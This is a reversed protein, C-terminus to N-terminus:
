EGAAFCIPTEMESKLRGIKIKFIFRRRWTGHRGGECSRTGGAGVAARVDATAHMDVAAARAEAAASRFDSDLLATRTMKDCNNEDEAVEAEYYRDGGGFSRASTAAM